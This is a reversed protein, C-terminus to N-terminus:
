RSKQALTRRKLEGRKTSLNERPGIKRLVRPKGGVEDANLISFFKHRYDGINEHRFM